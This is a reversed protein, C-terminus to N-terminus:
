AEGLEVHFDNAVVYMRDMTLAWAKGSFVDSSFVRYEMGSLDLIPLLNSILSTPGSMLQGFSAEELKEPRVFVPNLFEDLHIWDDLTKNAEVRLSALMERANESGTHFVVRSSSSEYPLCLPHRDSIALKQYKGELRTRRLSRRFKLRAKGSMASSAVEVFTAQSRLIEGPENLLQEIESPICEM